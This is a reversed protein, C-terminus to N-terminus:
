KKKIQYFLLGTIFSIQISIVIIISLIIGTDNSANIVSAVIIVLLFTITLSILTGWITIKM